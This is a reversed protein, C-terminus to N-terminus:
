KNALESIAERLVSIGELLAEDSITLPPGLKLSRGTHVM